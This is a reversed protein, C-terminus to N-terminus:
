RAASKMKKKMMLKKKLRQLGPPPPPPPPSLAPPPPPTAADKAQQRDAQVQNQVTRYRKYDEGLLKHIEADLQVIAAKKQEKKMQRTLRMKKMLEM